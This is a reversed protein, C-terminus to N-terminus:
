KEVIYMRTKNEEDISVLINGKLKLSAFVELYDHAYYYQTDEDEKGAKNRKARSDWYKKNDYPVIGIKEQASSEIFIGIKGVKYGRAYRTNPV